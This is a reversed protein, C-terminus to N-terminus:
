LHEGCARPHGPPGRSRAERFPGSSGSPWNKRCSGRCRSGGTLFYLIACPVLSSLPRTIEHFTNHSFFFFFLTLRSTPGHICLQTPLLKACMVGVCGVKGQRGKGRAAGRCRSSGSSGAFMVCDSKRQVSLSGQSMFFEADRVRAALQHLSSDNINHLRINLTGFFFNQALFLVNYDGHYKCETGLLEAANNM